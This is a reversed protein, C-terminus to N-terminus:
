CRRPRWIETEYCSNRKLFIRWRCVFGIKKRFHKEIKTLGFHCSGKLLHSRYGYWAWMLTMHIDKATSLQPKWKGPDQHGSFPGPRRGLSEQSSAGVGGWNTLCLVSLGSQMTTPLSKRFWDFHSVKIRECAHTNQALVHKLSHTMSWYAFYAESQQSAPFLNKFRFCFVTWYLIFNSSTDPKATQPSFLWGQGGFYHVDPAYLTIYMPLTCLLTCRSRVFYHADPAYLTIHMPLTCLLTCRSRVFYHAGPAYLTINMPLTCLLACRESLHLFAHRQSFRHSTEGLLFSRKYLNM